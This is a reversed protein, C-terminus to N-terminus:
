EAINAREEEEKDAINAREEEELNILAKITTNSSQGSCNRARLECNKKKKVLVIEEWKYCFKRVISEKSM